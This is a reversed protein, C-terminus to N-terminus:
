RLREAWFSIDWQRLEGEFGHAKSFDQVESLDRVAADWSAGRLEELLSEAAVLTAMQVM